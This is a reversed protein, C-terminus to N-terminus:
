TTPLSIASEAASKPMSLTHSGWRTFARFLAYRRLQWLYFSDKLFVLRFVISSPMVLRSIVLYWNQPCTIHLSLSKLLHRLKRSVNPQECICTAVYANSADKISFCPEMCIAPLILHSGSAKDRWLCPYARWRSASSLLNHGLAVPLVFIISKFARRKVACWWM